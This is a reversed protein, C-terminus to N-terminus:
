GESILPGPYPSLAAKLKRKRLVCQAYQFEETSQTTGLHNQAESKHAEQSHGVPINQTVKAAGGEASRVRTPGEGQM